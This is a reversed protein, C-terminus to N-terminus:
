MDLLNVEDTDSLKLSSNKKVMFEKQSLIQVNKIKIGNKEREDNQRPKKM